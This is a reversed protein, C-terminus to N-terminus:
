RVSLSIVSDCCACIMNGDQWLNKVRAACCDEGRFEATLQYVDTGKIELYMKPKAAIAMIKGASNNFYLNLPYTRAADLFLKIDSAQYRPNNGFVLNEGTNKDTLRFEFFDWHAICQISGDCKPEEQCNSNAPKKCSALAMVVLIFPIFRMVLKKFKVIVLVFVNCWPQIPNDNIKKGFGCSYVSAPLDNYM